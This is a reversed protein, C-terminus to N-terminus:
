GKKSEKIQIELITGVPLINVRVESPESFAIEGWTSRPNELDVFEDYTRMLFRTPFQSKSLNVVEGIDGVNMIRPSVNTKSSKTVTIENTKM